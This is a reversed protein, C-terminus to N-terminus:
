SQEYMGGQRPILGVIEAIQLSTTKASGPQDRCSLWVPLGLLRRQNGTITLCGTRALAVFRDKATMPEAKGRASLGQQHLRHGQAM